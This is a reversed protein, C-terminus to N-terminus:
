KANANNKNGKYGKTSRKKNDKSGKPRGKKKKPEIPVVMPQATPPQAPPPAPPPPTVPKPQPMVRQINKPIQEAIDQPQQSEQKKKKREQMAIILIPSYIVLLTVGFMVEPSVKAGRKRLLQELPKKLKNKRYESIQYKEPNDFDKALFQALTSMGIDIMETGMEAMLKSDSFFTDDFDEPDDQNFYKDNLNEEEIDEDEFEPEEVETDNDFIDNHVDVPEPEVKADNMPIKLVKVLDDTSVDPAPKENIPEPSSQEEIIQENQVSKKTMESNIKQERKSGMKKEIIQENKVMDEGKNTIKEKIKENSQKNITRAKKTEKTQVNKKVM